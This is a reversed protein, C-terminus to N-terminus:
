FVELSKKDDKKDVSDSYVQARHTPAKFFAQGTSLYFRWFPNEPHVEKDDESSTNSYPFSKDSSGFYFKQYSQYFFLTKFLLDKPYEKRLTKM